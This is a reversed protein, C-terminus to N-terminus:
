STWRTSSVYPNIELTPLTTSKLVASPVDQQLVLQERKVMTLTLHDVIPHAFVVQMKHRAHSLVTQERVWLHKRRTWLFTSCVVMAALVESLNINMITLWGNIKVWSSKILCLHEKETYLIARRTPLFVFLNVTQRHRQTLVPMKSHLHLLPHDKHFSRHRALELLFIRIIKLTVRQLVSLRVLKRLM